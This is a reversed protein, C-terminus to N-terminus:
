IIKIYIMNQFFLLLASKALNSTNFNKQANYKTMNRIKVCGGIGYMWFTNINEQFQQFKM